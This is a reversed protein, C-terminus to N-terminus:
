QKDQIQPITFDHYSPSQISEWEKGADERFNM